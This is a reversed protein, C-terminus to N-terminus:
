SYVSASAGTKPLNTPSLDTSSVRGGSRLTPSRRQIDTHHLLNERFKPSRMRSLLVSTSPSTTLSMGSVGRLTAVGVFVDEFLNAVMLSCISSAMSSTLFFLLCGNVTMLTDEDTLWTLGFTTSSFSVPSSSENSSTGLSSETSTVVVVSAALFALGGKKLGTALNGSILIGVKSDFGPLLARKSRLRGVVEEGSGAVVGSIALDLSVINLLGGGAEKTMPPLPLTVVDVPKSM